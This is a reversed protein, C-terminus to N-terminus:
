RPVRQHIFNNLFENENEFELAIRECNMEKKLNVIKGKVQVSGHDNNSNIIVNVRDNLKMATSEDTVIGLGGTSLSWSVGRYLDGQASIFVENDYKIRPHKRRTIVEKLEESSLLQELSKLEFPGSEGFKEWNSFSPHRVLNELELRDQHFFELMQLLSFPGFHRSGDKIYWHNFLSDYSHSNSAILLKHSIFKSFDNFKLLPTWQALSLESAESGFHIMGSSLMAVIDTYTIGRYVTRGFKIDCKIEVSM